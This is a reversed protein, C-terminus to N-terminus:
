NSNVVECSCAYMGRGALSPCGADHGVGVVNVTGAQIEGSEALAQLLRQHPRGGTALARRRRRRESPRGSLSM